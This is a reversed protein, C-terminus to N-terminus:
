LAFRFLREKVGAIDKIVLELKKVDGSPRPFVVVVQRRRGSGKNEVRIPKYTNGADDRLLSLAKLDYRNLDVSHTALSIDFRADESGQPNLFTANVTVGGTHRPGSPLATHQAGSPLAAEVVGIQFLVTFFFGLLVAAMFGNRHLVM